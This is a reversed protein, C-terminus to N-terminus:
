VSQALSPFALEMLAYENTATERVVQGYSRLNAIDNDTWWKSTYGTDTVVLGNDFDTKAMDLNGVMPAMAAYMSVGWSRLAPQRLLSLILGGRRNTAEQKVVALAQQANGNELTGLTNQLMLFVPRHIFGPLVTTLQLFDGLTPRVVTLEDAREELRAYMDPNLEIAVVDGATKNLYLEARGNGAGLDVFSRDNPNAVNSVFTQEELMYRQLIEDNTHEVLQEYAQANYNRMM